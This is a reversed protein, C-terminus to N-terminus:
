IFGFSKLVSGIKKVETESENIKFNTAQIWSKGKEMIDVIFKIAYLGCDKSNERQNQILNIKYKLLYKPKIKAIIAKFIKNLTPEPRRGLPDFYMFSFSYKNDIVVARFHNKYLVVFSYINKNLDTPFKFKALDAPFFCGLYNHTKNLVNDIEDNYIYQTKYHFKKNTKPKKILNIINEVKGKRLPRIISSM